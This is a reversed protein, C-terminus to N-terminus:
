TGVTGSGRLIRVMGGVALQADGPTRDIPEFEHALFQVFVAALDHGIGASLFKDAILRTVDHADFGCHGVALLDVEGGFGHNQSRAAVAGVARHQRLFHSRVEKVAKVAFGTVAERHTLLDTRAGNVEVKHLLIRLANFRQRMM